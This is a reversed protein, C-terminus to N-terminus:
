YSGRVATEPQRSAYREIYQSTSLGSSRVSFFAIIVFILCVVILFGFGGVYWPQKYPKLPKLKEGAAIREQRRAAKRERLREDSKSQRCALIFFVVGAIMLGFAYVPTFSFYNLFRLLWFDVLLATFSIIAFIKVKKM